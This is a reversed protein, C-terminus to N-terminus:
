KEAIGLARWFTPHVSIITDPSVESASVSRRGSTIGIFKEYPELKLEVLGVRYFALFLFRKFDEGPMICDVVQRAHSSLIGEKKVGEILFNLCFEECEKDSIEKLHFHKKKSRLIMAFNILNPYDGFWEDALARLRASSYEGEAKRFMQTTIVPKDVAQEACYNFFQIM